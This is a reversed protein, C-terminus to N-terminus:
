CTTLRRRRPGLRGRRYDAWGELSAGILDVRRRVLWRAFMIPRTAALFVLSTLRQPWPLNEEIFLLRNRTAYYWRDASETAITRGIKHLVHTGMHVKIKWGARRMRWSFELDENQFFYREDFLGLTEFVERRVLMVCAMLVDTQLDRPLFPGDLTNAGVHPARALWPNMRGGCFWIRDPAASYLIKAGVAGTRQDAAALELLRDVLDPAAITDNSLILVFDAGGDLAYQVGINNGGAIGRNVDSRLLVVQNGDAIEALRLVSEDTSGNDVVIIRRDIASQGRLSMVCERADQWGNHNLVVIWVRPRSIM